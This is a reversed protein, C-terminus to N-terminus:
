VSVRGSQCTVLSAARRPPSRADPHPPTERKHRPLGAAGDQARDAAGGRLGQQRVRVLGEHGRARARMGGCAEAGACRWRRTHRGPRPARRHRLSCRGGTRGAPAYRAPGVLALAEAAPAEGPGGVGLAAPGHRRRRLCRCTGPRRGVGGGRRGGAASSSRRNRKRTCRTERRRPRMPRVRRQGTARRRGMGRRMGACAGRARGCGKAGGRGAAPGDSRAGSGGRSPGAM